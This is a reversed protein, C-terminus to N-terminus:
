HPWSNVSFHNLLAFDVWRQGAMNSAPNWNQVIRGEGGEPYQAASILGGLGGQRRNHIGQFL